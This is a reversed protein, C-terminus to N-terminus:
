KGKKVGVLGASSASKSQTAFEKAQKYDNQNFELKSMELFTEASCYEYPVLTAGGAAKLESFSQEATKMENKAVFYYCGSLSFSFFILVILLISFRKSMCEGGKM